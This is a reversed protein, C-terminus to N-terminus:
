NGDKYCPVQRYFQLEDDWLKIEESNGERIHINDEIHHNNKNSEINEDPERFIIDYSESDKEDFRDLSEPSPSMSRSFRDDHGIIRLNDIFETITGSEHQCIALAEFNIYWFIARSFNRSNEDSEGLPEVFLHTYPTIDADKEGHIKRKIASKCNPIKSSISTVVYIEGNCYEGTEDCTYGPCPNIPNEGYTSICRAVSSFISYKNELKEKEEFSIEREDFIILDGVEPVKGLNGPRSLYNEEDYELVKEETPEPTTDRQEDHEESEDEQPFSFLMMWLRMLTEQPTTGDIINMTLIMTLIIELVIVLFHGISFAIISNLNEPYNIEYNYFAGEVMEYDRNLIKPLFVTTETYNPTINQIHGYVIHTHAM